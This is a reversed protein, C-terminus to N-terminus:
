GIPPAGIEDAVAEVAQAAARQQDNLKAADHRTPGTLNKGYKGSLVGGALPSWATVGLGLSRAMPLLEREADRNVLSYPVQLGVFPSWGHWEALANGRAVVWAPADSVGVYLVKGARVADDLARMTEEIPTAQDWVHM